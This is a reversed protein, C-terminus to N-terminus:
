RSSRTADDEGGAEKGQKRDWDLDARTPPPQPKFAHYIGTLWHVSFVGVAVLVVGIVILVVVAVIAIVVYQTTSM